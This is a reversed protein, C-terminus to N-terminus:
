EYNAYLRLCYMRKRDDSHECQIIIEDPMGFVCVCACVNICM